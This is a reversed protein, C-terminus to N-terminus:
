ERERSQEQGKKSEENVMGYVNEIGCMNDMNKFSEEDHNEERKRLSKGLMAGLMTLIGFLFATLSHHFFDFFCKAPLLIFSIDLNQSLM